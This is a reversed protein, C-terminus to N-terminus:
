FSAGPLLPAKSHLVGPHLPWVKWGTSWVPLPVLALAQSDPVSLVACSLLHTHPPPPTPPFMGTSSRSWFRPPVPGSM